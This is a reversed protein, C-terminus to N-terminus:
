EDNNANPGEIERILLNAWEIIEDESALEDERFFCDIGDLWYVHEGPYKPAHRAGVEQDQAAKADQSFLGFVTRLSTGQDPIEASETREHTLGGFRVQGM